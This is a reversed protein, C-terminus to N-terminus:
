APCSAGTADTVTGAIRGDQAVAVCPVALLCAVILAIKMTKELGQPVASRQVAGPGLRSLGVNYATRGVLSSRTM